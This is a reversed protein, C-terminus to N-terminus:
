EGILAALAVVVVIGGLFASGILGRPRGEQRGHRHLEPLLDAAAIYLFMGAAAAVFWAIQDRVADGLAFLALGGVVAALGSLFNLVLARRRSYGGRTLIAFDAIEQPIEHAAVATATAVGLGPSVIFSAAIVIGDILNHLGDGVLVLTRSAAHGATSHGDGDSHGHFGHLFRELFFFAVMALLTAWLVNAQEPAQEIAEPLLELLATSLLVGAAFSVLAVERRSSWRRAFLFVVGLWSVLSVALNALLSATLASMLGGAAPAGGAPASWGGRARAIALWAIGVAVLLLSELQPATLGALVPDNRRVFEVAFREIGAAALYLAFLVGPRFRDRLRWLALAILGM